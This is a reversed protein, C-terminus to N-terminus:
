KQVYRQGDSISRKTNGDKYRGEISKKSKRLFHINFDPEFGIHRLLSNFYQSFLKIISNFSYKLSKNLMFKVYTNYCLVDQKELNDM